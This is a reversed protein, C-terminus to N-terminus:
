HIPAPLRALAIKRVTAQIDEPPQEANVVVWRQPDASAMELYGRRVRHHFDPGYADLRNVDGDKNRRALGVEVPVDFLFTLDPTLGATAFSILNRLPELERLYGYGQYALTSDAFRDSLVVGGSDLHPRIVRDVLQARAAQFLLIETRELVGDELESFIVRRIKEGVPTGGPERTTLVHHGRQRLFDALAAMQTTKGSGEGGEFSIFM